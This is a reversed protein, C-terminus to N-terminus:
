QLHLLQFQAHVHLQPTLLTPTCSDSGSHPAEVGRIRFSDPLVRDMWEMKVQMAWLMELTNVPGALTM